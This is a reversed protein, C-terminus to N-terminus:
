RSCLTCPVHGLSGQELGRRSAATDCCDVGGEWALAPRYRAFVPPPPVSASDTVRRTWGGGGRRGEEDM